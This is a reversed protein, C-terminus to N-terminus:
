KRNIEELFEKENAIDNNDDLNAALNRQNGGYM